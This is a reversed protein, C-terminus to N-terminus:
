INNNVLRIAKILLDASVEDSNNNITAIVAKTFSLPTAGEVNTNVTIAGINSNTLTQNLWNTYQGSGNDKLLKIKIDFSQSLNLKAAGGAGTLIMDSVNSTPEVDLAGEFALDSVSLSLYALSPTNVTLALPKLTIAGFETNINSM